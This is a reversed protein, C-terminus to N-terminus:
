QAIILNGTSTRDPVGTGKARLVYNSSGPTANVTAFFTLLASTEQPGLEASQGVALGRNEFKFTVAAPLDEVSLTVPGSYGGVRRVSVNTSGNAGRAVTAAGAFEIAIGPQNDQPGGVADSGGCAVIALLPIPLRLRTPM